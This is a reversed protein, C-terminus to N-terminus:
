GDFGPGPTNSKCSGRVSLKGSLCGQSHFDVLSNRMKITIKKNKPLITYAESEQNISDIVLDILYEAQNETLSYGKKELSKILMGAAYKAQPSSKDYKLHIIQSKTSYEFVFFLTFLTVLFKEM